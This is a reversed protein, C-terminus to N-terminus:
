SYAVYYAIYLNHPFQSSPYIVRLKVILALIMSAYSNSQNVSYAGTKLHGEPIIISIRSISAKCCSPNDTRLPSTLM